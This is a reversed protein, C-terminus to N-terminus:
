ETATGRELDALLSEAVRRAYARLDTASEPPSEVRRPDLSRAPPADTTRTSRSAPSEEHFCLSSGRATVIIETGSPAHTVRESTSARWAFSALLTQWAALTAESARGRRALRGVASGEHLEVTGDDFLVLTRVSSGVVRAATMVVAGSM